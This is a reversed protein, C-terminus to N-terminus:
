RLRGFVPNEFGEFPKRQELKRAVAGKAGHPAFFTGRIPPTPPRSGSVAIPQGAGPITALDFPRSPPVPARLSAFAASSAPPTAAVPEPTRPTAAAVVTTGSQIVPGGSAPAPAEGTRRQPAAAAPAVPAAAPAPAAQAIMTQPLGQIQAPRGDRTLTAILRRDDSGAVGAPGIYDVKVRATGFRRFDLADAVRKSVDIVRGGHYPGRDNVRVVISHGNKLNTVRAYSPLPMTPHAASIASMDYIEGNATKRGHFADGYWSSVGTQSQGSAMERPFYRKGNITYPKGVLRRGGGRPVVRGDQVVRPSARGYRSGQPFYETTNPNRRVGQEQQQVPQQACGALVAAFAAPIIVSLARRLRRAGASPLSSPFNLVRSVCLVSCAAGAPAPHTQEFHVLESESTKVTM